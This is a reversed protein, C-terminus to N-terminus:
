GEPAVVEDVGFFCELAEEVAAVGGAGGVAGEVFVGGGLDGGADGGEERAEAGVGDTAM